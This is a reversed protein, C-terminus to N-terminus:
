DVRFVYFMRGSSVTIPWAQRTRDRVQRIFEPHGHDDLVVHDVGYKDILDDGRPFRFTYAQRGTLLAMTPAQNCLLVADEPLNQRVWEALERTEGDRGPTQEFHGAFSRLNASFLLAFLAVALM